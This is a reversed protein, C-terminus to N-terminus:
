PWHDPFSDLLVPFGHATDVLLEYAQSDEGAGSSAAPCRSV